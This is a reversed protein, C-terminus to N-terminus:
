KHTHTPTHPTNRNTHTHTHTHTRTPPTHTHHTHITHTHTQTHTREVQMEFVQHCAEIKVVKVVLYTLSFKHTHAHTHLYPPCFFTVSNTVSSVDLSVKQSLNATLGFNTTLRCIQLLHVFRDSFNEQYYSDNRALDLCSLYVYSQVLSKLFHSM